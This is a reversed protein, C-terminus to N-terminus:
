RMEKPQCRKRQGAIHGRKGCNYCKVDRRSRWPQRDADTNGRRAGGQQFIERRRNTKVTDKTKKQAFLVEEEGKVSKGTMQALLTSQTQWGKIASMFGNYECRLGRIIICRMKTESIHSESELKSTEHCLYKVKTFSGLENELFQLRTDNMKTFLTALADWTEKSATVERIQGLLENQITIKLAFVAKRANDRALPITKSGDVVEGGSANILYAM